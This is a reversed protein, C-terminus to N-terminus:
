SSLGIALKWSGFMNATRRRHCNACVVDCKDLEREMRTRTTTRRLMVSINFSKQSPERHDFELVVPDMEGCDKCGTKLRAKVLSRLEERIESRHENIWKRSKDIYKQRNAEYHHKRYAKHCEKCVTKRRVNKVKWYFDDDTKKTQCSSCIIMDTNLSQCALLSDFGWGETKSVAASGLQAM